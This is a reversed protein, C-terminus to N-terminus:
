GYQDFGYQYPANQSGGSWNTNPATQFGSYNSNGGGTNSQNLYNQLWNNGQGSLGGLYNAWINSQAMQANANNAGMQNYSNAINQGTQMSSAGAAGAQGAGIKALDLSSGYGLGYMSSYANYARMLNNLRNEDYQSLAQQNRGYATNAASTQRDYLTQGRSAQMRYEDLMKQTLYNRESQNRAFQKDIDEAAVALGTDRMKTLAASSDTGGIQSLYRKQADEAQKLKYQYVPANPNWRLDVQGPLDPTLPSLIGGQQMQEQTAGIQYNPLQLQNGATPAQTPFNIPTPQAPQQENGGGVEQYYKTLDENYTRLDEYYKALEQEYNQNPINGISINGGDTYMGDPPAITQSPMTPATPLTPTTGGTATTTPQTTPTTGTTSPPQTTPTGGTSTTQTTGGTALANQATPMTPQQVPTFPQTGPLQMQNPQMIEGTVPNVQGFQPNLVNSYQFSAIQQALPALVENMYQPMMQMLTAVGQEGGALFPAFDQQAREWM